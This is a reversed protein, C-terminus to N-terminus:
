IIYNITHNATDLKIGVNFNRSFKNQNQVINTVFNTGIFEKRSRFPLQSDTSFNYEGFCYADFNYLITSFYAYDMKSQDFQSTNWTSCTAMKTGFKQKYFTMKDSKDKWDQVSQYVGNYIQYSQALYWDNPGIHSVIGTPNSPININNGFVDDVNWANVFAQLNKSHIYDLIQNQKSRSISFDYGFRDAFIGKVGLKQWNDTKNKFQNISITSDIYGYVKTNIMNPHLIINKTNKHDSHSSQELGSGFIIMDYNKLINIANSINGNSNNILSPYGYYIALIKPIM